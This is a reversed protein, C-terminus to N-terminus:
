ISLSGNEAELLVNEIIEMLKARVPPKLTYGQPKLRAVETVVDSDAVATLFIVPLDKMDEDGRIATLTDVGNMGPMEYDLLVLDPKHKAISTLAQLGSAAVAVEYKEELLYKMNRLLMANDDVVLIRKKECSPGLM